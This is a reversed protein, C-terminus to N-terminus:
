LLKRQEALQRRRLASRWVADGLLELNYGGAIRPIRGGGFLWARESDVLHQLEATRDLRKLGDAAERALAETAEEGFAASAEVVHSTLRMHTIRSHECEVLRAQLLFRAVARRKLRCSPSCPTHGHVHM